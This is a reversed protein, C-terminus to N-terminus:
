QVLLKRVFSERDSEFHVLYLGKKFLSLPIIRDKFLPQQAIIEQGTVSFISFSLQAEGEWQLYVQSSAPNPFLSLLPTADTEFTNTTSCNEISLKTISLSDCGNLSSLTDVYTGQTTYGNYSEGQCILINQTSSITEQIYLDLIRISDCGSVATFLDIYSGKQTHGEISSGACITQEIQTIIREAAITLVLTRISDCGNALQFTDKFLGPGIYGEVPQGECTNIVLEKEVPQCGVITEEEPNIPETEPEEPETESEPVETIIEPETEIEPEVEEPNTAVTRQVTIDDLILPSFWRGKAIFCISVNSKGIYESLDLEVKKIDECSPVQLNGNTSFAPPTNTALSLGNESYLIKNEGCEASVIVELQNSIFDYRPIYGVTFQLSANPFTRLDMEPLCLLASDVEESFAQVAAFCPHCDRLNGNSEGLEWSVNNSNTIKLASPIQCTAFSAEYTTSLGDAGTSAVYTCYQNNNQFADAAGNPAAISIGVDSEGMPLEMVSLAISTTDGPAINVIPQFTYSENGEINIDITLSTVTQTGENGILLIPQWNDSCPLQTFAVDELSLDYNPPDIACALQAGDLLSRRQSEIHFHMRRKQGETFADWCGGTYDMYNSLMDPQDGMGGLAMARYPNNESTDTEDTTCSNSPNNCTGGNTGPKNKPPTDCVFDGETLCDRNGSCTEQSDPSFIHKLSFYHGLEHALLGDWFSSANIILFDRQSGGMYVGAVDTDEVLFINIYRTPDWRYQESFFLAQTVSEGRHYESNTHRIIGTTYNGDPDKRALCFEIETNVGYNPNDYVKADIHQHRFRETTLNLLDKITVDSPNSTSGIPACNHIVHFVVPFVYPMSNRNRGIQDYDEIYKRYSAEYTAQESLYLTSNLILNTSVQESGCFLDSQALVSSISLCLLVILVPPYKM